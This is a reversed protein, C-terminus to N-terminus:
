KGLNFSIGFNIDANLREYPYLLSGNAKALKFNLHDSGVFMSFGSTHFGIVAGMTSGFKSVAYNVGCSFWRAPRLNAFLRAETWTYGGNIHTSSLVGASLDRYFPMSYEVGANITASIMGGNTGDKETRRFDFMDMMDDTLDEFQKKLSNEKDGDLAVEDFGEFSWGKGSTQASITNKWSMYGLDNVAFSIKLGDIVEMEAGLDIAAGFGSILSGDETAEISDFDLMDKDSPDSIEAGSEGKTKIDMFSSSKLTGQSQILWKDENMQISMRDINAEINAIGVLFKVRAGVNLRDSVQRSYGLAFELRSDIKASIDSIEYQQYKGANKMFDFLGYPLNVDTTTKMGADFTLFSKRSKIGLSFLSIRNNLNLRNEPDLKGLFEDASVSSNMFTTLKGNVPYLFTSVGLNSQTELNFASIVPVSFYSTRSAFAPNFEHRHNYGDLFYASRFSQQAFASGAALVSAAMLIIIKKM